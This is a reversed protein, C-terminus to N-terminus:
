FITQSEGFARTGNYFNPNSGYTMGYGLLTGGLQTLSGAWANPDQFQVNGMAGAQAGLLQTNAGAYNQYFGSMAGYAGAEAAAQQSALQGKMGAVSEDIGMLTRSLDSSIGRQANDFATTNYLGRQTMSQQMASGMQKSQDYAGQKASKGYMDAFKNAKEFGKQLTPLVMAQQQRAAGYLWDQDKKAQGYLKMMNKMQKKAPDNSSGLLGGLISGGASILGAGIIPDM